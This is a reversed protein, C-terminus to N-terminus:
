DNVVESTSKVKKVETPILIYQTEQEMFCDLCGEKGVGGRQTTFLLFPASHNAKVRLCHSRTFCNVM